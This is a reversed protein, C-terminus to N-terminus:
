ACFRELSCSKQTKASVIIISHLGRRKRLLASLAQPSVVAQAQPVALAVFYVPTSVRNGLKFTSVHFANTEVSM